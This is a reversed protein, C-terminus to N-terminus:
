LPDPRPFNQSLSRGSPRRICDLEWASLALRGIIIISIISYLGQRDLSLYYLQSNESYHAQRINRIETVM